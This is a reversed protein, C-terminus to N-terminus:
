EPRPKENYGHDACTRPLEEPQNLVFNGGVAGLKTALDRECCARVRIERGNPRTAVVDFLEASM